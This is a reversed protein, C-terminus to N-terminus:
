SHVQPRWSHAPAAASAGTGETGHRSDRCAGAGQAGGFPDCSCLLGQMLQLTHYGCSSQAGKSLPLAPCPLAPLPLAPSRRQLDWCPVLNQSVPATNFALSLEQM